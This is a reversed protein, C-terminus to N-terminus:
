SGSTSETPQQDERKRIHLFELIRGWFLKLSVGIAAVGGLIMQIIMSGSGPDLYGLVAPLNSV